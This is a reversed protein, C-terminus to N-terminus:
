DASKMTSSVASLPLAKAQSDTVSRTTPYEDCAEKYLKEVDSFTLFPSRGFWMRLRARLPLQIRILEFQQKPSVLLREDARPDYQAYVGRLKVGALRVVFVGSEFSLKSPIYYFASFMNGRNIGVGKYKVVPVDKRYNFFTFTVQERKVVLRYIEIAEIDPPYSPLKCIGIWIGTLSFKSRIKLLTEVEGFVRKVVWGFAIIGLAQLIKQLATDGWLGSLWDPQLAISYEIVLSLPNM